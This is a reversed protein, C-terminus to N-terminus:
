LNAYKVIFFLLKARKARAKENKSMECINENKGRRSFSRNQLQTSLTLMHHCINLKTKKGRFRQNWNLERITLICTALMTVKFLQPIIASVRLSMKLHHERQRRRRTQRFEGNDSSTFLANKMKISIRLGRTIWPKSFQKLKFRSVSKVPAHKNILKNLKNYFTSFACNVNQQRSLVLELNVQLLENNYDDESFQSFNRTM